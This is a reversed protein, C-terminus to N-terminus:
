TYLKDIVDKYRSEIVRRKVKLTPTLEGGDITFEEALLRIKKIKEFQALDSTMEDVQQQMFDMVKEHQIFGERDRTDIDQSDAWKELREFDPVILASLFKRRNGVLVIEAIYANTKIRNEISQPAINKGGATVILDKKRDTIALYGDSDVVGVDGTLFWGDADLAEKTAAENKYYGKMVNPGRVLIEGDEAIKVEVGPITPGVTGFKLRKYPNVNTVPSTETLGYGEVITIGASYFFDAIEPALPAAGSVFFRMRGGVRNQLKKFVLATALKYKLELLGPPSKGELRYRGHERGVSVSWWFLKQRLSSSQSVNELVRAHMKEYLRPAFTMLTPRIEALNEAIKDVSEAIATTIGAVPFLYHAVLREFVHAYPLASLAIDATSLPPLAQLTAKVNSVFNDHTLMVGKPDGTTGSTYIITALDDPGIESALRRHLEPDTEAKKVGLSAIEDLTYAELGSAGPPDMAIFHEVDALEKRISAIKAQQHATSVIIARSESNHIIYSVQAAPLTSYIPVNVVGLMQLAADVLFWELRNESLLALRDGRSLGLEHLGLALDRAKEIAEKWSVRHWAGGSKYMFADPKRHTEMATLFLENLTEYKM